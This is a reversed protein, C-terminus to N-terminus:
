FIRAINYHENNNLQSDFLENSILVYVLMCVWKEVPVLLFLHLVLGLQRHILNFPSFIFFKFINVKIKNPIIEVCIEANFTILLVSEIIIIKPRLGIGSLGCCGSRIRFSGFLTSPLFLYATKLAVINGLFVAFKVFIPGSILTNSIVLYLGSVDCHM